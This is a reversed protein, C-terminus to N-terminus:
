DRKRSSDHLDEDEGFETGYNLRGDARGVRDNAESEDFPRFLLAICFLASIGVLAYILRALGSDQGGFLTAVLDWQFLGILGWNLGGIILLVLAIRLTTNM